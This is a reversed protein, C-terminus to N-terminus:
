QPGTSALIGDPDWERKLARWLPAHAPSPGWPDVRARLAASGSALVVHGLGPAARLSTMAAVLADLSGSLGIVGAGLGARATVSARRNGVAREIAAMATPLTAPLWSLRVVADCDHHGREAHVRWYDTDATADLMEIDLGREAAIRVVTALAAEVAPAVSGFRVVLASTRSLSPDAVFELALPELQQTRLAKIVTMADAASAEIVATRTSAPLPSLKFTANVVVALAGHSGCMLKSLDYGAVNKVVRGGAKALRGDTTAITVGIILDRPTGYRQRLAGSDNTGILGGITARQGHAPDLPLYQGRATLTLNLTSLATGAEVTATLDSAQHEVIRNLRSLNLDVRVAPLPRGWAAKTRGGSVAVDLRERTAWALVGAVESETAPQVVVRPVALSPDVVQQVGADGVLQVAAQTIADPTM